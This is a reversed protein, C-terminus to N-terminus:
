AHQFYCRGFPSLATATATDIDTTLGPLRLYSNSLNRIGHTIHRVELEELAIESHLMPMFM